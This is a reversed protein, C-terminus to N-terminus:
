NAQSTEHAPLIDYVVYVDCTNTESGEPRHAIRLKGQGATTVSIEMQGSEPNMIWSDLWQSDNVVFWEGAELPTIRFTYEAGAKLEGNMPVSDLTLPGDTAIMPLRLINESKVEDLLRAFDVGKSQLLEPYFNPLRKLIPSKHPVLAELSAIDDDSPAAVTYETMSTWNSQSGKPRYALMLRNALAPVFSCEHENGNSQWQLDFDEGNIIAFEYSGDDSLRFNYEKGIRLTGDTPIDLIGIAKNIYCKPLDPKNESLSRHFLEDPKFSFHSLEPHYFPLQVFTASDVPQSLLQYSADDPFHSFIAWHPDIHFWSDDDQRRQFVGQNVTGAGWTPDVLIGQDGDTYVYMWAHGNPSVRGDIDKSIGNVIDVKLGVAKSLHYFIECYAQCVGKGQEMANDAEHITYSTDYDINDCLWRYIAYAQEYKTKKKDVITKALPKWDYKTESVVVEPRASASLVAFILILSIPFKM